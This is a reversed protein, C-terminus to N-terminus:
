GAQLPNASYHASVSLEGVPAEYTDAADNRDRFLHILVRSNYTHGAGSITIDSRKDAWATTGAATTVSVLTAPSWTGGAEQWQVYAQWKVDGGAATTPGWHIHFVMDTGAVYDHDTDIAFYAHNVTPAANGWYPVQMNADVWNGLPPESTGDGPLRRVVAERTVTGPDATWDALAQIGAELRNLEAADVFPGEQYDVWTKRTFPVSM